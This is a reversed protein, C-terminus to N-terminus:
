VFIMVIALIILAVVLASLVYKWIYTLWDKYSVELYSLGAILLLSTPVVFMTLGYMFQFGIAFQPYLLENDFISTVASSLVRALQIFDNYILSGFITTLSLTILQLKDNLTLLFNAVANFITAGSQTTIILAFLINAMVVYFAVPLMEKAGNIFSDLTEKISLSYIWAIVITAIILIIPIDYTTWNGLANVAGIINEVIPYGNINIDMISTHLENFFGIGFAINWDFMAIILFVFVFISVIILPLTNYDKQVNQTYLPIKISNEKETDETDKSIEEKARKIVFMGFLVSIIILFIIKTLIENHVNIDLFYKLASNINYSYTAGLGGVLMSGITSALATIKSYGLLLIVTIFFPVLIFILFNIGVLSSLLIFVAISIILFKEKKDDYKQVVNNIIKQYVGTKNLVGYLGGIVIIVVGLYIFNSITNLPIRILDLIGVPNTPMQQYTGNSFYGTPIVWTLIVGIIFTLGLIKALHYKKM